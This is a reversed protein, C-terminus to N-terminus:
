LLYQRNHFAKRGLNLGQERWNVVIGGREFQPQPNPETRARQSVPNGPQWSGESSMASLYPMLATVASVAASSYLFERRNLPSM